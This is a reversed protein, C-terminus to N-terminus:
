RKVMMGRSISIWARAFGLDTIQQLVSQTPTIATTANSINTLYGNAMTQENTLQLSLQSVTNIGSYTDSKKGSSVQNSLTNLQTEINLIQSNLFTNQGITSVTSM